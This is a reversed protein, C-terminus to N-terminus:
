RLFEALRAPVVRGTAAIASRYVAEQVQLHAIAASRDREATGIGSAGAGDTGDAGDAGDIVDGPRTVLGAAIRRVADGVRETAPRIAAPDAGRLAGALTELDAVLAAGGVSGLYGAAALGRLQAALEDVRAAVRAPEAGRTAPAASGGAVAAGLVRLGCEHARGVLAAADQLASTTV